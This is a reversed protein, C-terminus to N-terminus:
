YPKNGDVSRFRVQMQGRLFTLGLTTFRPAPVAVRLYTNGGSPMALGTFIRTSSVQISVIDWSEENPTITDCRIKLKAPVDFRRNGDNTLVVVLYTDVNDALYFDTQGMADHPRRYQIIASIEDIVGGVYSVISTSAQWANAGGALPSTHAVLSYGRYEYISM